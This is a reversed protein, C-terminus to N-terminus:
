ELVIVKRGEVRFHMGSLELIKLAGLLTEERKIQGVFLNNPVTGEYSIDVDYWRSFQQMVTKIDAKNFIFYGNKWAIEQEIDADSLSLTSNNVSVMQGPTLLQSTNGVSVKIAGEVLTTKVSTEDQYANINFRTGIDEITTNNAVVKFPMKKNHVVEFYAEGTLEVKRENGVFSVPYKLTSAADLWVKTGDSLELEYMGGNPTSITNYIVSSKPKSLGLYSIRGGQRMVETNGEKAVLGKESDDLIVKSGNALTLVAKKRGPLIDKEPSLTTVNDSSTNYGIAFYVGGVSVALAVVAAALWQRTKKVEFSETQRAKHIIKEFLDDAKTKDSLGVLSQNYLADEICSKLIDENNTNFYLKLEVFEQSTLSNNAFRELLDIYRNSDM